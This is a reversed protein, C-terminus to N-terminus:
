IKLGIMLIDDLQRYGNRWAEVATEIRTKQESLTLTGVKAVLDAFRKQSFHGIETRKDDIYGMQDTIGDSFMYIIDGEEIAIEHNTFDRDPGVYRGIPMRDPRYQILQGGRMIWLPRYAGAYDIRSSARDLVMFAIDMGEMSIATDQEHMDKDQGLAKILRPRLENLISSANAGDPMAAAIENLVDIEGNPHTEIHVKGRITRGNLESTLHPM